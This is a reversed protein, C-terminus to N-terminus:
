GRTTDAVLARYVVDAIRRKLSRMAEKKTKGEDIKRDYYVRGLSDHSIQGMAIIHLAHNLQRNGRRSLRQVVRGGSSVDIPATGNYTAYHGQSRFRHVDGTYGILMCAVM